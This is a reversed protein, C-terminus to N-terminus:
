DDEGSEGVKVEDNDGDINNQKDLDEGNLLKASEPFMKLYIGKDVELFDQDDCKNKEKWWRGIFLQKVKPITPYHICHCHLQHKAVVVLREYM